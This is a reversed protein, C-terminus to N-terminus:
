SINLVNEIESLRDEVSPSNNRGPLEIPEITAVDNIDDTNLERETNM